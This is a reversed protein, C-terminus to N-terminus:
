NGMVAIRDVRSQRHLLILGIIAHSVDWVM